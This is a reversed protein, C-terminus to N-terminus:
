VEEQQGIGTGGLTLMVDKLLAAHDDPSANSVYTRNKLMVTKDNEPTQFLMQAIENQGGQNITDHEEDENEEHESEGSDDDSDESTDSETDSKENSSNEDVMKRKMNTQHGPLDNYPIFNDENANATIGEYEQHLNNNNETSSFQTGVSEYHKKEYSLRYQEEMYRRQDCERAFMVANAIDTFRKMGLKTWGAYKQNSNKITYPSSRPADRTQTVVEKLWTDWCRELTFIGFAEDSPTCTKQFVKNKREIKKFNSCGAISTGFYDLFVEFMKYEETEPINTSSTNIGNESTEEHLLINIVKEMVFWSKIKDNRESMSYMATFCIM